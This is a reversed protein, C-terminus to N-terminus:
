QLPGAFEGLALVVGFRRRERDVSPRRSKKAPSKSEAPVFNVVARVRYACISASASRTAVQPDVPAHQKTRRILDVRGGVDKGLHVRSGLGDALLPVVGVGSVTQTQNGEETPSADCAVPCARRAIFPCRCNPSMM